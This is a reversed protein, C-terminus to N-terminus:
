NSRSADGTHRTRRASIALRVVMYIGWFLVAPGFMRPTHTLVHALWEVVLFIGLLVVAEIALTTKSLAM